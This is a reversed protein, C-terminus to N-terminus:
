FKSIIRALSILCFHSSKLLFISSFVNVAIKPANSSNLFHGEASDMVAEVDAEADFAGTPLFPPSETPLFLFFNSPGALSCFTYTNM